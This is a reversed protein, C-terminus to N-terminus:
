VAQNVRWSDESVTQFTGEALPSVKPQHWAAAVATVVAVLLGTQETTISLGYIAALGVGIM